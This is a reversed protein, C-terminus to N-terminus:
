DKIAVTRNYQHIDKGDFTLPMLWGAIGNMTVDKHITFKLVRLLAPHSFYYESIRELRTLSPRIMATLDTTKIQSFGHKSLYSELDGIYQGETPVRMATLTIASARREFASMKAHPKPEYIDFLILKGGPKLVRSIESITREKDGIYCVTEVGFVLDFSNTAFSSLDSFDGERLTINAPVKNKLFGRHPLDLATFQIEPHKAALYKSNAVKGAGVELIQKTKGDIYGDIFEAQKQFDSKHFQGDDSLGMHINGGGRSHILNYFFDSRRYYKAITKQNIEEKSIADTDYFCNIIELRRTIEQQNTKSLPM